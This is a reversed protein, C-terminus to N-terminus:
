FLFLIPIFFVGDGVMRFRESEQFFRPILFIVYLCIGMSAYCLQLSDATVCFRAISIAITIIGLAHIIWISTSIGLRLVLSNFGDQVDREKDYFSFVMLNLFAILGLQGVVLVDDPGVFPKLTLPALYIGFAYVIAVVLEKVWLQKIWWVLILYAIAISSLVAGNKIVAEPLFYINWLSLILVGGATLLLTQFHKQHFLHRPNSPNTTRRADILHDLTYILWVAAGLAVYVTIPMAIQYYNELYVLFM